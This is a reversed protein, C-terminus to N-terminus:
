PSPHVSGMSEIQGDRPVDPGGAAALDAEYAALVDAGLQHTLKGAHEHHLPHEPGGKITTERRERFTEPDLARLLFQLLGDSYERITGVQVGQHFVPKEVGHFARRTAEALLAEKGILKAKAWAERFVTDTERRQYPLSDDIGAAGYPNTVVGANVCMMPSCLPAESRTGDVDNVWVHWRSQYDPEDLHRPFLHLDGDIDSAFQFLDAHETLM